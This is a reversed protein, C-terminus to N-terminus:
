KKKKLCFVAYSIEAQRTPESIHILSLGSGRRRSPRNPIEARRSDTPRRPIHMRRDAFRRSPWPAFLMLRQPLISTLGHRAQRNLLREIRRRSVMLGPTQGFGLLKIAQNEGPLWVM